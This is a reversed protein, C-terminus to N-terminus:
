QRITAKKIQMFTHVSLGQLYKSNLMVFEYTGINQEKTPIIVYCLMASTIRLRLAETGM